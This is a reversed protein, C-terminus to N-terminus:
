RRVGTYITVAGPFISTWVPNDFGAEKMLATMADRQPAAEISEHLYSYARSDGSVLRGALPILGRTYAKYGLLPLFSTPMSLEIVCVVGGPRLVRLMEKYGQLLNEFNRVGYAVTILDFSEGPFDMRLSDGKAFRIKNRIDAPTDALRKRAIDLMGDSLDIGAIQAEPWRRNLAFAVDGTGTAIDLIDRPTSQLRNAAMSIGRNRWYTHMGLSMLSNMLDYAPAISDFMEEVQGGKNGASEGYPLIKDVEQM